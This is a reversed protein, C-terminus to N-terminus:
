KEEDLDYKLELVNLITEITQPNFRLGRMKGEGFQQIRLKEQLMRVELFVDESVRSMNVTDLFTGEYANAARCFASNFLYLNSPKICGQGSEFLELVEPSGGERM